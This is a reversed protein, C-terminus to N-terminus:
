HGNIQYATEFSILYCLCQLLSNKRGENNVLCTPHFSVPLISSLVANGPTEKDVEYRVHVPMPSFGPMQLSHDSVFRKPWSM